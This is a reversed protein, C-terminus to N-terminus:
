LVSLEYQAIVRANHIIVENIDEGYEFTDGGIITLRDGNYNLSKIAEYLTYRDYFMIGCTGPLMPGVYFGKYPGETCLPYILEGNDDYQPDQLLINSNFAWDGSDYICDERRVAYYGYYSSDCKEIIEYYPISEETTTDIISEEIEEKTFDCEAIDDVDTDIISEELYSEDLDIEENKSYDDVYYSAIIRAARMVDDREALLALAYERCNSYNVKRGFHECIETIDVWGNNVGVKDNCHGDKVMLALFRNNHINFLIHAQRLTNNYYEVAELELKLGILRTM